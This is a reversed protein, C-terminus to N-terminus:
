EPLFEEEQLVVTYVKSNAMKRKKITVPLVCEESIDSCSDDTNVMSESAVDYDEEYEDDSPQGFENDELEVEKTDFKCYESDEVNLGIPPNYGINNVPRFTLTSM